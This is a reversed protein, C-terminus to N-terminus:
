FVCDATARLLADFVKLASAKKSCGSTRRRSIFILSAIVPILNPLLLLRIVRPGQEALGVIAGYMTSLSLKERGIALTEVIQRQIRPAAAVYASCIHALTRSAEDRVKWHQADPPLCDDETPNGGKASKKSGDEEEEEEPRLSATLLCILVAPVMEHLYPGLDLNINLALCGIARLLLILRDPDGINNGISNGLFHCLYPLLPQLGADAQLSSLVALVQATNAASGVPANLLIREVKEFYMHLEKPVVHEVPARLLVRDSAEEPQMKTPTAVGKGATEEVQKPVAEPLPLPTSQMVARRRKMRYDPPLLPINEPISPQKGEVALWHISAGAEWPVPPLKSDLLLSSLPLIPDNVYLLDNQGSARIFHSRDCFSTLGYIPETNRLRFASNIDEPSLFTRHAHRAIKM